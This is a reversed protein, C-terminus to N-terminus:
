RVERATWGREPAAPATPPAPVGGQPFATFTVTVTIAGGHVREVSPTARESYGPVGLVHFAYTGNTLAVTLYPSSSSHVRNAIEVQWTTGFPLGNEVFTVNYPYAFRVTLTESREVALSGFLGLAESGLTVNIQQGSKPAIEYLYVGPTLNRVVLSSGTGCVPTEIGACWNAHAPLGKEHFTVTYTPGRVFSFNVYAPNAFVYVLGGAPWGGSVRYGKPGTILYFNFGPHVPFTVNSGTTTATVDNLDVTWSAGPPLGGTMSFEITTNLTELPSYYVYLSVFHEDPLLTVLGNPTDLEYNAPTSAAYFYVGATLPFAIVGTEYGSVNGYTVTSGFVSAGGAPGSTNVALVLGSDWVAVFLVGSAADLATAAPYSGTLIFGVSAGSAPAIVSVNDSFENPVYLLGNLPDYFPHAPYAGVTWNRVVSGNPAVELVEGTIDNESVLLNGNAADITPASPPGGFFTPLSQGAVPTSANFESVNYSGYNAVYVEGNLPDYSIDRADYGVAVSGIPTDTSANLITVNSPASTNSYVASDAVFLHQNTPDYAIGIPNAGVSLNAVFAGTSGNFVTVSNSEADTVFVRDNIPDLAFYRPDLGVDITGLYAFSTANYVGVTANGSNAVFLENSLPDVLLGKPSSLDSIGGVTGNPGVATLSVNWAVGAGLGSEIASLITGNTFRVPVTVPAGALAETGTTPDAYWTAPPGVAFSYNGDELDFAVTGAGDATVNSLTTPAVPVAGGGDPAEGDIASVQDSDWDVVYVTGNAAAALSGPYAGTPASTVVSLNAPDVISVNDSFENGTYLYGNVPDFVSHAPYSGVPIQGVITDLTTNIAVLAGGISNQSVFLDGTSTAVTPGIPAGGVYVTDVVSNNSTALVSVTGAGYNTVYVEGTQADYTLDRPDAGVPVTAVTTDKTANLVTVDGAPFLSQVHSDAVYVTGQAADYAIGIPNVGVPVTAIVKNTTLSIVSVTNSFTNTVFLAHRPADYAFYRPDNGVRVVSLQSFNSASYVYVYGKESNSGTGNAAVYIDGNPGVFIGRPEPAIGYTAVAGDTSGSVTVNWTSGNPLGLESFTLAASSGDPVVSAALAPSTPTAVVVVASSAAAPATVIGALPIAMLAATAVVLLGAVTSRPSRM